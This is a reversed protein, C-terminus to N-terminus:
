RPHRGDSLRRGGWEGPDDRTWESLEGGGDTSSGDYEAGYETMADTGFTAMSLSYILWLLYM